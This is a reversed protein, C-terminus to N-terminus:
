SFWVYPGHDQEPPLTVTRSDGPSMGFLAAEFGQVVQGSGLEFELPEHGHSSDFQQGGDMTGTYHVRATNGDQALAV